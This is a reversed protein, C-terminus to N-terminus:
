NQHEREVCALSVLQLPLPCPPTLLASKYGWVARHRRDGGTGALHRVSTYMWRRAVLLRGASLYVFSCRWNKFNYKFHIYFSHIIWITSKWHICSGAHVHKLKCPRSFTWSQGLPSFVDSRQQVTMFTRLIAFHRVSSWIRCTTRVAFSM